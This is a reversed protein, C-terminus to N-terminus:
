LRDFERHDRFSSSPPRYSEPPYGAARAGLNNASEHLRIYYSKTVVIPPTDSPHPSTPSIKRPTSIPYRARVIRYRCHVLYCSGGFLFFFLTNRSARCHNVTATTCGIGSMIVVRDGRPQVNEHPDLLYINYSYLVTYVPHRLAHM